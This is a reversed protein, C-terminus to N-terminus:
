SRWDIYVNGRADSGIVVDDFKALRLKRVEGAPTRETTVEEIFPFDKLSRWDVQEALPGRPTSITLAGAEEESAVISVSTENRSITINAGQTEPAPSVNITSPWVSRHFPIVEGARM